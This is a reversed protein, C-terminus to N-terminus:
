LGLMRLTRGDKRGDFYRDLVDLFIQNEESVVAFLTMCSRLKIDDPRGMIERVSLSDLNLLAECIERLHGNLYPNKIYELAEYSNEIGYYESYESKGLGKLQPFIYWIWHSQKKGSRIEELAQQYNLEQAKIFRTLDYSM